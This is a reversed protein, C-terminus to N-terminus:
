RLRGLPAAAKQGNADCEPQNLVIDVYFTHVYEDTYIYIASSMGTPTAYISIGGCFGVRLRCSNIACLLVTCEYIYMWVLVKNNRAQQHFEESVANM